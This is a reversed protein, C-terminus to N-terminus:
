YRIRTFATRDRRKETANQYRTIFRRIITPSNEVRAYVIIIINYDPFQAAVFRRNSYNEVIANQKATM